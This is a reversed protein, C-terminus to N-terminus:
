DIKFIAEIEVAAGLPLSSVGLAARAHAGNDGMVSKFFESAGNIVKPHDKFDSTAACFGSLKVLRGVRGLDGGLAGSLAALINVACLQAAKQGDEISIDNGFTGSYVV